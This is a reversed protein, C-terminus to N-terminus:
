GNYGKKVNLYYTGPEITQKVAIKVSKGYQGDVETCFVGSVYGELGKLTHTTPPVENTSDVKQTKSGYASRRVNSM